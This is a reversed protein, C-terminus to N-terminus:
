YIPEGNILKILKQSYGWSNWSYYSNSTDLEIWPKEIEVVKGKKGYHRDNVYSRQGTRYEVVNVAEEEYRHKIGVENLLEHISKISPM